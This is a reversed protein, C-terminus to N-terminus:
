ANAQIAIFMEQVVLFLKKRLHHVATSQECAPAPNSASEERARTESFNGLPVFYSRGDAQM